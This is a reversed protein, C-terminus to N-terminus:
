PNKIELKIENNEKDLEPSNHSIEFKLENINIKAVLINNLTLTLGYGIKVSDVSIEKLLKEDAYIKLKINEADKLGHNKITINSDLYKGRMNASVNEFVLDSYSPHSYLNNIKGVVDEGVRQSCKTINYMISGQNLSHDFGLVHLLEHTAVNPNECKSDRILLIQGNFIVNFNNTSTINVPGGEGAIFLNNEIKNRSDCTIFIEENIETEYFELVTLNSIIEFAREMDYKKQLPCEYIRYSIENGTFRMNEYFQMGSNSGNITFNSSYSGYGEYFGFTNTPIVWYFLLLLITILVFFSSLVFKWPM